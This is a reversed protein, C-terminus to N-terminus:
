SWSICNRIGESEIVQKLHTGINRNFHSMVFPLSVLAHVTSDIQVLIWVSSLIMAEKFTLPVSTKALRDDGSQNDCM